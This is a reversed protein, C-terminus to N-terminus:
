FFSRFGTYKSCPVFPPSYKWGSFFALFLLFFPCQVEGQLSNTFILISYIFLNSVSRHPIVPLRIKRPYSSHRTTRHPTQNQLLHGTMYTNPVKKGSFLCKSNYCWLLLFNGDPFVITTKKQIKHLKICGKRRDDGPCYWIPFSIQLVTKKYSVIM